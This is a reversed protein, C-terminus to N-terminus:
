QQQRFQKPSMGTYRKFYKGFFSIDPFSLSYAIEQITLETSMLKGKADNIVFTSIIDTLTKGTTKKITTSLHQPSLHMKDAYFSINRENKYNEIVHRALERVIEMNRNYRLHTTTQQKRNINAIYVLTQYYNVQMLDRQIIKEPMRISKILLRFFDTFFDSQSASLQIVPSDYIYPLLALTKSFLSSERTLDTSFATFLFRCDPSAQVIHFFQEPFVIALSNAKMEYSALHINISCTGRLCLLFLSGPLQLPSDFLSRFNGILDYGAMMETDPSIHGISALRKM